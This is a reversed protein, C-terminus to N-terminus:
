EDLEKMKKLKFSLLTHFLKRSDPEDDIYDMIVWCAELFEDFSPKM